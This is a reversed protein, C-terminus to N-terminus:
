RQTSPAFIGILGIVCAILGILFYWIRMQRVSGAISKVGLSGKRKTAYLKTMYQKFDTAATFMFGAGLLIAVSFAGYLM